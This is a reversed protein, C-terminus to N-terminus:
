AGKRPHADDEAPSGHGEVDRRFDELLKDVGEFIYVEEFDGSHRHDGKGRENDYGILRKGPLGYFLRYKFRHTSGPVPSPLEWVVAEIISGDPLNDKRRHILKAGMNAVIGVATATTLKALVWSGGRGNCCLRGM